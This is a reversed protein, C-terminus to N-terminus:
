AWIGKAKLGDAETVIASRQEGYRCGGAPLSLAVGTDAVAAISGDARAGKSTVIVDLRQGILGQLYRRRKEEAMRRLESARHKRVAHPVQEPMTTAETGPRASFPFVHLGALPLKSLFALARAHEEESEGPFGAIIDGTIAVADIEAALLTAARAVEAADYGRRMAGLVADSGSQISLHIHRCVAGTQLLAVLRGDVERPPLSSLRLRAMGPIGALREVLDVLGLRPTLDRGYQGIDIGALIIERHHRSLERCAAGVAEPAMSRSRGRASPVICYACRRDCGDQIKLFARARSQPKMPILLFPDGAEGCAREKGARECLLRIMAERDSTGFVADIEAIKTLEGSATEGYCGTAIVIAEPHERKIRRLLQRSQANALGTVTCTNVVYAWAAEDAPVIAFGLGALAQAMGETDSWNAKCGLTTLAVRRM